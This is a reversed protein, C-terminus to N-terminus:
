KKLFYCFTFLPSLVYANLNRLRAGRLLMLLNQMSAKKGCLVWPENSNQSLPRMYANLLTQLDNDSVEINFPVDTYADFLLKVAKILRDATIPLTRLSYINFNVVGAPGTHKIERKEWKSIIKKARKGNMNERRQNCIKVKYHSHPHVIEIVGCSSLSIM